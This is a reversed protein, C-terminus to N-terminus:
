SNPNVPGEMKSIDTQLDAKKEQPGQGGASYREYTRTTNAPMGGSQPESTGQQEPPQLYQFIKQLDPEHGYKSFVAILENANIAVGQAQLVQLMPTITQLVQNIFALRSQPTQRQLSYIDVKIRPLPGKRQLSGPPSKATGPYVTRTRKMSPMGPNTWTSKMVKTPHNWWFWNLASLCREFFTAAVDAMDSVGASANENLMKDQAATRSQPTRGGLLAMNGGVFEFTTRIHDSMVLVANSPGGTEIEKLSEPNDCQFMGGDPEDQLRKVEDTQGGRYGMVKKADRTQRMLKRYARNYHRHLDILDMIPAKPQLNGPMDGFKLFHYPGEPPGLYKQIHVVGKVWDPLGGNDRLTVVVKHRPIWIEWLTCHDEFEERYGADRGLTDIREDGGYNYDDLEEPFFEDDKKKKYLENAVKVPLRYRHGLYGCQDFRRATMDCVFDDPDISEMYPQGSELDWNDRASDAPTAIGVKIIGIWFFADVCAREFTEQCGMTTIEDNAWDQMAAVTPEQEREFTQYMVNPNNAILSKKMIPVYMGILNVPVEAPAANAGYNKGGFERVAAMRNIRFPELQQRDNAIATCLRELDLGDPLKPGPIRSPTSRDGRKATTATAM